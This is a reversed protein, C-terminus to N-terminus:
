QNAGKYKLIDLINFFGIWYVGGVIFLGIKEIM